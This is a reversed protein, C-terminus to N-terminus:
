SLSLNFVAANPLFEVNALTRLKFNRKEYSSKIKDLDISDYRFRSIQHVSNRAQTSRNKDTLRLYSHLDIENTTWFSSL